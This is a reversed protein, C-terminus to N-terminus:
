RAPGADKCCRTGTEDGNYHDDHGVQFQRCAHRSPIWWSGKMVEKYGYKPSDAQTWEEVNGSLDLVGFPSACRPHASAPARHDVLRGIRGLGEQIDTNCAGEDRKFGYPYPRMEEGECAFIWESEKCLRGGEAECLAKSSTWSMFHRPLDSGPETRETRDICFRRHVRATKCKAPHKYEACRFNRYPGPPDMWRLCTQEVDPCYEGDVLVMGDPCATEAAAPAAPVRAIEPGGSPLPARPTATQVALNLTASGVAGPLANPQAKAQGCAAILLCALPALAVAPNSRVAAMRASAYHM